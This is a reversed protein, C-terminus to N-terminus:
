LLIFEYAWRRPTQNRKDRHAKCSNIHKYLTTPNLALAHTSHIRRSATKIEEEREANHIYVHTWLWRCQKLKLATTKCAAMRFFTFSSLVPHYSCSWFYILPIDGYLNDLLHLFLIAFRNCGQVPNLTILVIYKGLHKNKGM